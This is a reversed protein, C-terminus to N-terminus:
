QALDAPCSMTCGKTRLRTSVMDETLCLFSFLIQRKASMNLLHGM